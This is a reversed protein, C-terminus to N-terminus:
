NQATLTLFPRFILIPIFFSAPIFLNLHLGLASFLPGLLAAITTPVVSVGIATIGSLDTDTKSDTRRGTRIKSQVIDQVNNEM